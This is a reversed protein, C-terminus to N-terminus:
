IALKKHLIKTCNFMCIRCFHVSKVKEEAQACIKPMKGKPKAAPALPMELQGRNKRTM